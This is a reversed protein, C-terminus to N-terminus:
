PQPQYEVRVDGAYVLRTEGNAATFALAGDPALASFLGVQGDVAIAQGLHHCRAVWAERIAPFGESDQWIGLYESLSLALKEFVADVNGPLKSADYPLGEPVHAINIGVGIAMVGPDIAEVLIGCFKAGDLLCDNPWKLSIRSPM